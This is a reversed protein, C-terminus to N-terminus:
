EYGVAKVGYEAQEPTFGEFELQRILGDRSFATFSLYNKASLAAQEYWDAGSNDVGYKAETYSYGEFELQRILGTYSFATFSLYNKASRLANKEGMTTQSNTNEKQEEITGVESIVESSDQVSTGMNSNTSLTDDSDISSLGGFLVLAGIIFLLMISNIIIGIIGTVLGGTAIGTSEHKKQIGYFVVATIALFIGIYPALFLFLSLIGLVLSAIGWAHTPKNDKAMKIM